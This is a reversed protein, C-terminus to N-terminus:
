QKEYKEITLIVQQYIPSNTKGENELHLKFQKALGLLDSEPEDAHYEKGAPFYKEKIYLWYVHDEPSDRWRFAYDLPTGYENLYPLDIFREETNMIAKEAIEPPLVETFIQRLTKQNM